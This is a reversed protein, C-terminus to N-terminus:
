LLLVNSEPLELENILIRIKSEKIEDKRSHIDNFHDGYLLKKWEENNLKFYFLDDDDDDDDGLPFSYVLTPEDTFRELIPDIIDIDTMPSFIKQRIETLCINLKEVQVCVDEAIGAPYAVSRNALDALTMRKELELFDCPILFKRPDRCKELLKKLLVASSNKTLSTNAMGLLKEKDSLLYKLMKAYKPMLALPVALSINFHLKKFMQYTITKPERKVENSSSSLPPLSVSPGTLVNGSRTTIVKIEKHPNPITNSPLAGQPREKLAKRMEAMQKQVFQNIAEQDKKFNPEGSNYNRTAAYIDQTYGGPAQCEYYSHPGGCTECSPTVYNVQQNSRYMQLMDKRMEIMKDPPRPQDFFMPNTMTLETYMMHWSSCSEYSMIAFAIGQSFINSNEKCDREQDVRVVIEKDHTLCQAWCHLEKLHYSDMDEVLWGSRQFSSLKLRRCWRFAEEHFDAEIGLLNRRVIVMHISNKLLHDIWATAHHTLSYLFLYLRLADDIVGNQKMSQTLTLFKDLHKNADDGPIRHFHYSNQVQQIMHNKLGFDTAQINICAILGGRGNMTPECLEEIMQLNPAPIQLNLRSPGNHNQPPPGTPPSGQVNNTNNSM